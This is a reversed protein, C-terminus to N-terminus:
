RKILVLIVEVVIVSTAVENELKNEELRGLGSSYRLRM